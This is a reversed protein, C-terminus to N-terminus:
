AFTSWKKKAFGDKLLEAMAEDSRAHYVNRYIDLMDRLYLKVKNPITIKATPNAICEKMVALADVVFGCKAFYIADRGEGSGIDLLRSDYKLKDYMNMTIEALTSHELGWYYEEKQAYYKYIM